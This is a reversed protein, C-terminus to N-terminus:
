PIAAGAPQDHGSAQRSLLVPLRKRVFELEDERSSLKGDLKASKLETLLQGILPGTPVGQQLIDDGNLEPQINRHRRLYTEIHERQGTKPGAIRQLELVPLPIPELMEVVESPLLGPSELVSAVDRFRAAGGIVAVWEKEPQLRRVVAEAEDTTLSSTLCALHLLENHATNPDNGIQEMVKLGAKSVRLSPSITALISLAEARRLIDARSSEQLIKKLESVVRSPTLRDLYVLGRDLAEATEPTLTFGLRVEYRVARLIRTPDDQFSEDHLIRIRRRACDSFGKHPDLLEGWSDPLISIAMSNVSFDRRALDDDMGAPSIDPLAGPTSYSERRATAVDIRGQPSEIVATDFQSVSAVEGGIKEALARAFRPGNGIVVIDPDNPERGLVLDRVSGGVLYAEGAGAEGDSALEGASHLLELTEEPLKSELLNALKPM